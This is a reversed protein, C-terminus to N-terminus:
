RDPKDTLRQVLLGGVAAILVLCAIQSPGAAMGGWGGFGILGVAVAATLISVLLKM